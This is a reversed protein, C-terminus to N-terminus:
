VLRLRVKLKPLKYNYNSDSASTKTAEYRAVFSSVYTESEMVRVVVM